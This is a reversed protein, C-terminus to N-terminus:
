LYQRKKTINKSRTYLLSFSASTFAYPCYLNYHHHYTSVSITSL